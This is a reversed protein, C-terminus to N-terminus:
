TKVVGKSKAACHPAILMKSDIDFIEFVEPALHRLAEGSHSIDKGTVVRVM